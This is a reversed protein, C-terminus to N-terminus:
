VALNKYKDILSTLLDDDNTAKGDIVANLVRTKRDIIEAIEEEITNAAVLYYINVSNLQGIRHLRDEAQVCEGPTWPLEIFALNSAATLTIGVGAARINGVFLKIKPDEQFQRVIEQRQKSPISGDIKVAIDGYREILDDITKRHTCFVALKGELLHDDIWEFTYQKKGEVALQKMKEFRVLVMASRARMAAANGETEKLYSILDRKAFNYDDWNDLPLVISTKIKEPLEKLVDKKLRRIMFSKNLIDNLKEINTAGKAQPDNEKDCYEYEFKTRSSFMQPNLLNLTTFFESPRNTIPTGSICIIKNMKTGLYQINRTRKAKPNKIYHSEDLILIKAELFEILDIYESIIDYNIIVINENSMIDASLGNIVTTEEGPMWKNIEKQWNLKLSAPVIIVAPRDQPNARLYGIAQVTKGLGCDDALLARGNLTDILRIGEEQFPRYKLGNPLSLDIESNGDQFTSFWEEIESDVSWGYEKIKSISYSNLPISWRMIRRNWVRGPIRNVDCSESNTMPFSLLIMNNNFVGKKEPNGMYKNMIKNIMRKQSDNLAHKKAFSNLLARDKITIKYTELFKNLQM